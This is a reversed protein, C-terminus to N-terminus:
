ETDSQKPTDSKKAKKTASGADTPETDVELTVETYQGSVRKTSLVRVDGVTEFDQDAAEQKLASKYGGLVQPTVGESEGPHDKRFTSKLTHNSM